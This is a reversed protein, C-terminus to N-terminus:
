VVPIAREIVGVVIMATMIVILFRAAAMHVCAVNKKKDHEHLVGMVLSAFSLCPGLDRAYSAARLSFM